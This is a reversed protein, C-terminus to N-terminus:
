LPVRADQHRAMAASVSPLPFIILTKERCSTSPLSSASITYDRQGDGLTVKKGVRTMREAEDDLRGRAAGGDLRRARQVAEEGEGEGERDGDGEVEIASLRQKKRASRPEVPRKRRKPSAAPPSASRPSTASAAAAPTPDVATPENAAAPPPDLVASPSHNRASRTRAMRALALHPNLSSLARDVQSPSASM